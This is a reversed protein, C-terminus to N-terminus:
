IIMALLSLASVFMGAVVCNAFSEGNSNENVVPAINEVTAPANGGSASPAAMPAPHDHHEAAVCAYGVPAGSVAASNPM